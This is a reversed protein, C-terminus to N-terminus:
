PPIQRLLAAAFADVFSDTRDLGRVAGDFGEDRRRYAAAFAKKL